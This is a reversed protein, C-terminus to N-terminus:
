PPGDTVTVELTRQSFDVRKGFTGNTAVARIRYVNFSEGHETHASSTCTVNVRFGNLGADGSLTAPTPCAHSTMARNVGWQLGSQAAWYARKQQLSLLATRHEVGSISVIVIALGALVVLVFIALIISFGGQAHDHERPITLM